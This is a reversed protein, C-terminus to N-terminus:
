HCETYIAEIAKAEHELVKNRKVKLTPTLLGNDVTWPELTLHVRRVKAYSPFDHLLGKIRALVANHVKKDMLTESALPNVGLSQALAPWMEGNLVVLASLFPRGEGVILVQEFLPDSGITTEMDGPPVKEGNSLVMIDKLRGTIYIHNDVIRAQDGTRLWGENDVVAATAAHNNWYGMMVGPSQVQLEDDEGIRVKIGRLPIGVSAPANDTPTNVSIVPSTETLGYGQLIPIGLGLFVRAIEPSLAAGGSVVYRLRGGFKEAFKAAVLRNLLPWLLLKPGWGQRGQSYNFFHWGVSVSAHFLWRAYAPKKSLGECVKAYVKEFIRPVSILVTPRVTLLDQALQTVTRSYAVTAGAMMPLYYGGTRELTHSLPLFSLFTETQRVCVMTLASHAVSLINHHSLMVGKPRGTTGSTYVITALEHPKGDRKSLASSEKPLWDEVARVRPDETKLGDRTGFFLIRQVEAVNGIAPALREWRAADQLLLLKVAADKLIYSINDPRDDTYLPVVVLGLSLAAQEFMVWEKCNRLSLAVRDGPKLFPEARLAAQWKAVASGMEAWTTDVWDGSKKNFSKYAVNKPTRKVRKAFLGDLTKADDVYIIDEASQSM